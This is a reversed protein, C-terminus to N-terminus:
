VLHCWKTFIVLLSNTPLIPYLANGEGWFLIGTQENAGVGYGDHTLVMSSTFPSSYFSSAGHAAHHSIFYGPIKRGELSVTVPFHLETRASHSVEEGTPEVGALGELTLNRCWNQRHIFQNLWPTVAFSEKRRGKHEPFFHSYSRHRLTGAWTPDYFTDLFPSTLLDGITLGNRDIWDELATKPAHNAHRAFSVSFRKPDDIILEIDQTSTIAVLDVQSVGIGATELACEITRLDLSIAHKIRTLRERLICSRVTGNMVVCAAADHGFHLGLINM